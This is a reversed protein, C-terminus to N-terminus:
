ATIIASGAQDALRTLNMAWTTADAPDLLMTLTCSSSRFTLLVQKGDDGAVVAGDMLYPGKALIRNLPDQGANPPRQQATM